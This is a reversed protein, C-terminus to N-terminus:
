EFIRKLRSEYRRKIEAATAAPDATDLCHVLLARRDASVDATLTGPTMTITGALTAIAEPAVLDLPVAIFHSRLSAGPRFLVLYAVQIGSVVIDWVVIVSYELIALPHRVSPNQPWFVSTLLPVLVGVVLGLVVSGASFDNVLLCWVLTITLSLLPHPLLKRRM